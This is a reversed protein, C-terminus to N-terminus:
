ATIAANIAAFVTTDAAVKVVWFPRWTGSIPGRGGTSGLGSLLGVRTHMTGPRVSNKSLRMGALPVMFQALQWRGCWLHVTCVGIEGAFGPLTSRLFEGVRTTYHFLGQNNLIGLDAASLAIWGPILRSEPDFLREAADMVIGVAVVFLMRALGATAAIVIRAHGNPHDQM